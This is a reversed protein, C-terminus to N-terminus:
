VSQHFSADIMEHPVSAPATMGSSTLTKVEVFDRCTCSTTLDDLSPPAESLIKDPKTAPLKEAYQSPKLMTIRIPTAKMKLVIPNDINIATGATNAKPSTANPNRPM